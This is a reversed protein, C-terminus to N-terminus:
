FIPDAFSKPRYSLHIEQESTKSSAIPYITDNLVSALFETLEETASYDIHRKSVGEEFYTVLSPDIVIKIEINEAM